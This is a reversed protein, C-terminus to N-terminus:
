KAACSNCSCRQETCASGNAKRRWYVMVGVIMFVLSLGAVIWPKLFLSVDRSGGHQRAVPDLLMYRMGWTSRAGHVLGRKENVVGEM